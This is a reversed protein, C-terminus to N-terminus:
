FKLHPPKSQLSALWRDLLYLVAVVSSYIQPRMQTCTLVLYLVSLVPNARKPETAPKTRTSMGTKDKMNTFNFLLWSFCIPAPSSVGFIHGLWLEFTCHLLVPGAALHLPHILSFKDLLVLILLGWRNWPPHHLCPFVM